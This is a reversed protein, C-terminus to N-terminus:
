RPRKVARIVPAKIGGCFLLDGKAELGSVDSIALADLVRGSDPDIRRLDSSGDEYTGHWLEGEDFSVGTVFRDSRLTKLLKGTTADIQHIARGKYQGVWLTGSDWALGSHDQTMGPVPLTALVQGTKADLKRIKDEGIQYLHKGDYATGADAAAPLEREIAGTDPNVAVVKKGEAFWLHTGDHSVGHVREVPFPGYERVITAKKPATKEPPSPDHSM